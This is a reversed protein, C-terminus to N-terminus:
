KERRSTSIPWAVSIIKAWIKANVVFAWIQQCTLGGDSVSGVRDMDADGGCRVVHSRASESREERVRAAEKAVQVRAGGHRRGGGM